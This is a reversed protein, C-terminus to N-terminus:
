TIINWGAIVDANCLMTGECRISIQVYLLNISICNAGASLELDLMFTLTAKIAKIHIKM